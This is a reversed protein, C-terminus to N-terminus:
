NNRFCILGFGRSWLASSTSTKHLYKLFCQQLVRRFDRKLALYPLALREGSQHSAYYFTEKLTQEFNKAFLITLISLFRNEYCSSRTENRSFGEDHRFIYSSYRIHSNICRLVIAHYVKHDCLYWQFISFVLETTEQIKASESIDKQKPPVAIEFTVEVVM